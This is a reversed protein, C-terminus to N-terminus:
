LEESERTKEIHSILNNFERDSLDGSKLEILASVADEISNDFYTELLQRLASRMAKKRSITPSYIYKLGIKIHKLFGKNELINLLKRITSYGPPDPIKEQIEKASANRMRYVINMIQRERKSLDNLLKRSM